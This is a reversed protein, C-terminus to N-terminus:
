ECPVLRPKSVIKPAGTRFMNGSEDGFMTAQSCGIRAQVSMYIATDTADWGYANMLLRHLEEYGRTLSLDSTQGNTLVYWEDKTELVPWNLKFNKIVRVRVTSRGGIEIGTGTCEGDGMTAHIDGMALLAGPVNVPFYVTNGKRVLRCDMNGGHRAADASIVPEGAPAVGMVGIMPDLPWAVDNFYCIGDKNPIKRTRLECKDILPGVHAMTCSYGFDDVDIDLIDVALVDGPEAAELYVPGAAPNCKELDLDEVLDAESKIQCGFCDMSEFCLIEGSKATAVPINAKDFVYISDKIHQM